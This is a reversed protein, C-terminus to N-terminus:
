DFFDICDVEELSKQSQLQQGKQLDIQENKKSKLHKFKLRSTSLSDSIDTGSRLRFPKVQDETDSLNESAEAAIEEISQYDSADFYVSQKRPFANFKEQIQKVTQINPFYYDVETSLTEYSTQFNQTLEHKLEGAPNITFIRSVPIGVARYAYADNPRNGYGAFFPNKGDFLSQIDKLCRIKFEEPNRDIVERKFAHILSDPNLFLPGDPLCVDGQKLSQLYDKTISAQGIARASLYIIQYGNNRIKTYLQAVGSQAWDRGIVPMLHGLVDSKTITGDIDSIVVKDSHHWLYIHCRCRTTGQFATTVSFEVENSGRQLNLKKLQDSSLRISKKYRKASDNSDQSEVDTETKAETANAADVDLKLAEKDETKDQHETQTNNSKGFWGFWSSSKQDKKDKLIDTEPELSLNVNQCNKTLDSTLDSPLPQKYLLESLLIPAAVEFPLYKEEVRILLQKESLFNPNKRLKEVFTSYSIEHSQFKEPTIASNEPVPLCLSLSIDPIVSADEKKNNENEYGSDCRELSNSVTPTETPNNQIDLPDSPETKFDGIYEKVLDPNQEIDDLYVGVTEESRKSSKSWGFWSSETKADKKTDEKPDEPKLSDKSEDHKPLEGWKWSFDDTVEDSDQNLHMMPESYTQSLKMNFDDINQLHGFGVSKSMMSSIEENTRPLSCEPDSHYGSSFSIRTPEQDQDIIDVLESISLEKGMSMEDETDADHLDDMEFLEKSVQKSGSYTLMLERRKKRKKRLNRNENFDEEEEIEVEITENSAESLEPLITGGEEVFYHNKKNKHPLPSTALDASPADDEDDVDEVFFAAGTDDLKMWIDVPDGNIEIDVIKERAKLVGMKGFRVHFPSASLSGDDQEVVIVDIAGTLTAANIESYFEKVNKMFTTIFSM